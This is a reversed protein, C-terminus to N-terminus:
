QLFGCIREAMWQRFADTTPPSHKCNELLEVTCEGAFLQPARRVMKPGPFSFDEDAGLVLVPGEYSSLEERTALKPIQLSLNYCRFAAGIYSKWDDDTTTLLNSALKDLREPTPKMLYRTLPWGVKAFGTWGPSKVMGAPVLLILRDIRQPAHAALRLAVFGGFSVGLVHARQLGLAEMVEDLWIGYDGNKTSIRVPASKVSQGIIDVAHVRFHPLLLALEVLLHASSALAGHLIVLDPADRAGASLVHTEGFRTEVNRSDTPAQIRAHFREYWDRITDRGKDDKFIPKM